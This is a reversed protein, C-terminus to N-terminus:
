ERREAAVVAVVEVRIRETGKPTYEQRVDWPGTIKWTDNKLVGCEVLGDVVPKFTMCLSDFDLTRYNYRTLTLKVSELPQDPRCGMTIAAVSRKWAVANGHKKWRSAGLLRNAREPLGPLEIVLRYGGEFYADAKAEPGKAYTETRYENALKVGGEIESEM